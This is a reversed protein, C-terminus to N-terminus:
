GDYEHKTKKERLRREPLATFLLNAAKTVNTQSTAVDNLRFDPQRQWSTLVPYYICRERGFSSGFGSSIDSKIFSSM